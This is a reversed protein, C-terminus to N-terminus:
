ENRNSAENEIVQKEDDIKDETKTEMSDETEIKPEHITNDNTVPEDEISANGDNDENDDIDNETEEMVGSAREEAAARAEESLGEESVSAEGNGITNNNQYEPILEKKLQLVLQRSAPFESMERNFWSNAEARKGQAVLAVAYDCYLGPEKVGSKRNKNIASGYQKALNETNTSNQEKEYALRVNSDVMTTSAGCASLMGAIVAILISKIIRIKTM